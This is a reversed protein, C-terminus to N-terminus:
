NFFDAHGATLWSKDYHIGGIGWYPFMIYLEPDYQDTYHAFIGCGHGIEHAWDDAQLGETIVFRVGLLPNCIGGQVAGEAGGDFSQIISIDCYQVPSTGPITATNHQQNSTSNFPALIDPRNVSDPTYTSYSNLHYRVAARWDKEDDKRLLLNQAESLMTNANPPSVIQDSSQVNFYIVHAKVVLFEPSFM